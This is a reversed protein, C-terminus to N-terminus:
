REDALEGAAALREARPPPKDPLDLVVWVAAHDSLEDKLCDERYGCRM